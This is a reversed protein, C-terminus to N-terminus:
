GVVAKLDSPAPPKDRVFIAMSWIKVIKRTVHQIEESAVNGRLKSSTLDIVKRLRLSGNSEDISKLLEQYSKEDNINASEDKRYEKVSKM